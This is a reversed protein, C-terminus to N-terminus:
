FWKGWIKCMNSFRYIKYPTNGLEDSISLCSCRPLLVRQCWQVRQNWDKYDSLFTPVKYSKELINARLMERKENGGMKSSSSSSQRFVFLLSALSLSFSLRCWNTGPVKEPTRCHKTQSLVSRPFSDNWHELLNEPRTRPTKTSQM